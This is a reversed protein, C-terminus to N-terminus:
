KHFGQREASNNGIDKRPFGGWESFAEPIAPAFARFTLLRNFVSAPAGRRRGGGRRYKKRAPRGDRVGPM